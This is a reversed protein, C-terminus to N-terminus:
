RRRGYIRQRYFLMLKGYGIDFIAFVATLLVLALALGRKSAIAPIAAPLWLWMAAFALLFFAYKVAWAFITGRRGRLHREGLREAFIKVVPYLGFFIAYLWIEPIAAGFILGLVASAIWTLIGWGLGCEIAAAAVSLSALASLALQGRPAVRAILLIAVAIGACVGCRAVARTSNKFV